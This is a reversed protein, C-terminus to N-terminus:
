GKFAYGQREGEWADNRDWEYGRGRLREGHDM